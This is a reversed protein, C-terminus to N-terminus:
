ERYCPPSSWVGQSERYRPPSGTRWARTHRAGYMTCADAMHTYISSGTPPHHLLGVPLAAAGDCAYCTRTFWMYVYICPYVCVCVYIYTCVCICMYICMYVHICVYTCTYVCIHIHAQTHLRMRRPVCAAYESPSRTTGIPAHHLRGGQSAPRTCMHM